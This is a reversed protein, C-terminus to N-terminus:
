RRDSTPPKRAGARGVSVRVYRAIAAVNQFNEIVFDGPRTSTGLEEDVWAVLRLVAISDLLDTLLDDERGVEVQAGVLEDRVFALIRHELEAPDAM